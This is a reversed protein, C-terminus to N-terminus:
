DSFERRFQQCFQCNCIKQSKLEKNGQIHVFLSSSSVSPLPSVLKRTEQCESCNCCNCTNSNRTLAEQQIPETQTTTEKHYQAQLQERAEALAEQEQQLLAQKAQLLDQQQMFLQDYLIRVNKERREGAQELLNDLEHELKRDLELLLRRTEPEDDLIDQLTNLLFNIPAGNPSWNRLRCIAHRANCEVKQLLTQTRRTKVSKKLLDKYHQECEKRSADSQSSASDYSTYNTELESETYNKETQEAERASDSEYKTLVQELPLKTNALETFPRGLQGMAKLQEHMLVMLCNRAYKDTTPAEYFVLLWHHIIDHHVPCVSQIFVDSVMQLQKAFHRDLSDENLESM